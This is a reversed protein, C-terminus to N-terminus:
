ARALLWSSEPPEIPTGELGDARAAEAMTARYDARKEAQLSRSETLSWCIQWALRAEIAKVLLSDFQAVDTQRMIYRVPLPASADCVIKRGEIRHKVPVGDPEGDVTLPLVRLCDTPLTYQKTFGFAPAASDAALSARKIACNWEHARLVADRVSEYHRNCLRAQKSDDTLATIAYDGLLDLAGRCISIVSAAM